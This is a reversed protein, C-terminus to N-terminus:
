RRIASCEPCNFFRHERVRWQRRPKCCRNILTEAFHLDIEPRFSEGCKQCNAWREYDVGSEVFQEWAEWVLRRGRPTLPDVESKRLALIIAELEDGLENSGCRHAESVASSVVSDDDTSQQSTNRKAM